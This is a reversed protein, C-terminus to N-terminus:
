WCKKRAVFPHSEMPEFGGDHADDKGKTVFLDWEGAFAPMMLMLRGEEPWLMGSGPRLALMVLM